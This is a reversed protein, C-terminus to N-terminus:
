FRAYLQVDLTNYRQRQAASRDNTRYYNLQFIFNRSLTYNVAAGYDTKLTGWSKGSRYCDWRGYIKLRKMAPIGLTAYWADSRTAAETSSVVGGVSSMYESRFTWDGEYKLGIGWRIRKVTRWQSTSVDTTYKENVYTGNWGFGGLSLGKVPSLWIGGILDKHNDKDTHNIGQGNFLGIQYHLQYHGDEYPFLDGQLQIGIDRGSSKHEGNRDGISALKTTAQSYSGMGVDLPSYPNEFGFPRKFQGIKIRLSTWRQWEIFADLIRPGKDEGPAGNVEAQIRYYLDRFCNGNFYLRIFRLDFSSKPTAERSDTASYKGVIYGGFKINPQAKELLYAAPNTATSTDVVPRSSHATNFASHATNFITQERETNTFAVARQGIFTGAGILLINQLVIKM